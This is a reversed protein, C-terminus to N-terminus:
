STTSTCSNRPPYESVEEEMVELEEGMSEIILFYEDVIKDMLCYMLYDPGLTRTRSDAKRLRARISNFVDGEDEQFSIVYNKGLILSVQEINLNHKEKDYTLMKLIVFVHDNFDDIKPRSNTNVVDELVLTSIGFHKGIKEVIGTDHIGDINIWTNSPSEKYIFCEEPDHFAENKWIRNTITL